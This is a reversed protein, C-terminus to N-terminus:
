LNARRQLYAQDTRFGLPFLVRRAGTNWCPQPRLASQLPTIHKSYFKPLGCSHAGDTGTSLHKQYRKTGIATTNDVKVNAPCCRKHTSADESRVQVGDNRRRNLSLRLICAYDLLLISGADNPVTVTKSVSYSHSPSSACPVISNIGVM